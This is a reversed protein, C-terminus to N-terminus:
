ATVAGRVPLMALLSGAAILDIDGPDLELHDLQFRPGADDLLPAGTGFVLRGAGFRAALWEVGRQAIVTGTEVRVRPAADLLGALERLRRYGPNLLLVVLGPHTETIMRVAAVTTEELSVAVPTGADAFAALWQQCAPGTLDFRHVAPHLRIMAPAGSMLIDPKDPIQSGHVGPIGVPVPRLRPTGATLDGLLANGRAPDAYASVTHTVLAEDIKLRDLEALLGPVTSSPVDDAPLPGLLRHADIVTRRGPTCIDTM